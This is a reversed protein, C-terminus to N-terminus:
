SRAATLDDILLELASEEQVGVGLATMAPTLEPDWRATVAVGGLPLLPTGRARAAAVHEEYDTAGMRWPRADYRAIVRNAIAIGAWDFDGRYALRAGAAVLADLLHLVVTRPNGSTCVVPTTCGAQAAAELVRPNECVFVETHPALRWSIRRLDSITLHAEVRAESRERLMRAPWKDGAPRLGYTLATSSVADVSVGASEWLDRRGQSDAPVTTSAARALGRLVIRSLVTGDDLGHTTGTVREALEGRSLREGRVVVRALVDVAHGISRAAEAPGLRGVLGSRRVEALWDASWAAQGLGSSELAADAARWTEEYAARRDRRAAPRDVPPGRLVSVADVLGCGAASQELRADLDALPVTLSVATAPYTRGTLLSIADREGDTPAVLRVRGRVSVGNHQLRHHVLDWFRSLEPRDLWARTEPTM